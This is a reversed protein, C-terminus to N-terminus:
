VFPQFARESFGLSRCENRFVTLLRERVTTHSLHRLDEECKCSARGVFYTDKNM